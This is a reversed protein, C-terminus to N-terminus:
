RRWAFSWVAKSEMKVVGIGVENWWMEVVSVRISWLAMKCLSGSLVSM